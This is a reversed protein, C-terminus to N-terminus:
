EDGGGSSIPVVNDAVVVAEEEEYARIREEVTPADREDQDHDDVGFARRELDQLRGLAGVLQNLSHARQPHSVARMLARQRRPTPDGRTVEDIEEQLADVELTNAELEALLRRHLATAKAIDHRHDRVVEVIQRAAAEVMEEETAPSDDIKPGGRGCTPPTRTTEPLSPPGGGEKKDQNQSSEQRPEQDGRAQARLAQLMLNERASQKAKAKLDRQWGERKAKDLIAVHSCGYLRAIGRVSVLGARYAMEIESWNLKAMAHYTGLEERTHLHAHLKLSGDEGRM